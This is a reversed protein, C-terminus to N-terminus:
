SELDVYIAGGNQSGAIVKCGINAFAGSTIPSGSAASLTFAKKQSIDLLALGGDEFGAAMVNTKPHSALMSVMSGNSWGLQLAERGEPGQKDFPWLIVVESGSTGLWKGDASWAMKTPKTWYGRMQYDRKLSLNWMHLAGEQMGTVIWRRDTSLTVSLHAGKWELETSKPESKPWAWLTVGDRHSAVLGRGDDAFAVDTVSAAHGELIQPEADEATWLHIKKGDPVAIAGSKAHVAMRDTWAGNFGAFPAVTGDIAIKNLTGDDSLSLFGDGYPQIVPVAGSHAKVRVRDGEPDHTQVIIVHGDGLGFAFHDGDTSFVCTNVPADFKYGHAMMKKDSTLNPQM